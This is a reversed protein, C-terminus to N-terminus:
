LPGGTPSGADRWARRAACSQVCLCSLTDDKWKTKRKPQVHPLLKEAADTILGAVKEIEESYKATRARATLLSEYVM